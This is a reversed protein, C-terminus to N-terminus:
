KSTPLSLLVFECGNAAEAPTAAIRAGAAKLREAVEAGRSRLVTLAHGKKMLNVAVPEGMAGVGIMAIGSM